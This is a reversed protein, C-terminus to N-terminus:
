VRPKDDLIWTSPKRKFKADVRNNQETVYLTSEQVDSGTLLRDLTFTKISTWYKEDVYKRLNPVSCQSAGPNRRYLNSTDSAATLDLSMQLFLPTVIPHSSCRTVPGWQYPHGSM